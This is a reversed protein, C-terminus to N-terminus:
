WRLTSNNEEKEKEIPMLGKRSPSVRSIGGKKEELSKGKRSSLRAGKKGLSPSQGKEHGAPATKREGAGRRHNV